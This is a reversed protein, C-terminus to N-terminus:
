MKELEDLWAMDDDLDSDDIDVVVEEKKEVVLNDLDEKTYTNDDYDVMVGNDNKRIHPRIITMEDVRDRNAYLKMVEEKTYLGDDILELAEEPLDDETVNGAVYGTNYKGELRIRRVVDGDVKLFKDIMKKVKDKNDEGARVTLPLTLVQYETNGNKDKGKYTYLKGEINAIGEDEWTSDDVADSTLIVTQNFKFGMERDDDEEVLYFVQPEYNKQTEDNYLNYSTNGRIYMKMGTQLRDKMFEIADFLTLFNNYEWVKDGNEDEVKRLAVSIFSKNDINKLIEENHRDAFQIEMQGEGGKINAFIRKGKVADYGDMANLWFQGGKGDEMKLNIRSYNYNPNNKGKLGTQFTNEPVVTIIGRAEFNGFTQPVKRQETM